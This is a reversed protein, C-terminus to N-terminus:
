ISPSNIFEGDKDLSLIPHHEGPSEDIFALLGFCNNCSLHFADACYVGGDLARVLDKKCADIRTVCGCKKCRIKIKYDETPNDFYWGESKWKVGLSERTRSIWKM